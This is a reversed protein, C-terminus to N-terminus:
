SVIEYYETQASFEPFYQKINNHFEEIKHLDVSTSDIGFIRALSKFKSHSVGTPNAYEFIFALDGRFIFYFHTKGSQFEQIAEEPHELIEGSVIEDLITNISIFAGSDLTGSREQYSPLNEKLVLIPVGSKDSIMVRNVRSPDYLGLFPYRFLMSFYMLFGLDAIAFRIAQPLSFIELLPLLSNSLIALLVSIVIIIIAGRNEVAAFYANLLPYVMEIIVLFAIFVSLVLWFLDNNVTTVFGDSLTYSVSIWDKRHIVSASVFGVIFTYVFVRTHFKEYMLQHYGLVFSLVFFIGIHFLILWLISITNTLTDQPILNFVLHLVNWFLILIASIIFFSLKKLRYRYILKITVIICFISVIIGFVNILITSILKRDGPPM